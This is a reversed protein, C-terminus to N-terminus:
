LNLVLFFDFPSKLLRKTVQNMQYFLLVVGYVVVTVANLRNPAIVTKHVHRNM